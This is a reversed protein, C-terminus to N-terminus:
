EKSKEIMTHLLVNAGSVLDESNTHEKPNHSIGKISPVFIMAAPCIRSMMQADHGAGSTMRRSDLGLSNAKEEILDVIEQDFTVPDFRALVRSEISVGENSKFDTLFDDIEQEAQRLIENDTNRLDVTMRARGPIVNIVNPTFEMEGVTSVQNTGFKKSLERVFVAVASACYGADRRGQMPTTGAHNAQGTFTIERWSIGQLNEVVGIGIGETELVPGQEIHLEIFAHPIIEGCSMDGDYNIRVLEDGLLQGDSDRTKLADEIDLGGAYVLSGMMDPQFRAGEENTFAGVVIPRKTEIHLDNLTEVVELGALVGYAGDYKGGNRVTDLHSGTMIPQLNKIGDRIGFINGIRDVRVTMGVSEMLAVVFDRGLKDESTLTLRSVGGEKTSGIKGLDGIRRLLRQSNVTERDGKNM